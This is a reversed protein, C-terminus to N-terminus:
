LARTLITRVHCDVTATCEMGGCVYLYCRLTQEYGSVKHGIGFTYTYATDKASSLQRLTSDQRQTARKASYQSRTSRIASMARELWASIRYKNGCRMCSTFGTETRIYPRRSLDDYRKFSDHNKCSPSRPPCCRLLYKSASCSGCGNLFRPLPKLSFTSPTKWVTRQASAYLGSTGPLSTLSPHPSIGFMTCTVTRIVCGTYTSTQTHFGDSARPLVCANNISSVAVQCLNLFAVTEISRPFVIGPSTWDLLDLPSMEYTRSIPDM